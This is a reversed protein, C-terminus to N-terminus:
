ELKSVRSGKGNGSQIRSEDRYEMRSEKIPSEQDM